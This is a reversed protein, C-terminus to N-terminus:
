KAIHKMIRLITKKIGAEQASHGADDIVFLQSDNLAQDLKISASVKCVLDYRGHVIYTPIDAIIHANDLIYNEAIFCQYKIYHCELLALSKMQLTSASQHKHNAEPILKSIAVEWSFWKNFAEQRVEASKDQMMQYFTSCIAQWCDVKNLGRTFSEYEKPFLQAAAGKNSLFWDYDVSRALFTGRLVLQSTYQPHQIAYLLALTAGWSGGFVLWKEIKLHQRISEMDAILHDSTNNTTDAFPQSQGCGRQDFAIVYYKSLDFPWQYCSNLGAGPGGHLFVVPIGCPNGTLEVHLVHGDSVPQKFSKTTM